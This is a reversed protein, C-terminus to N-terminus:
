CLNGVDIKVLDWYSTRSYIHSQSAFTEGYRRM